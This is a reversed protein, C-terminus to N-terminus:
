RTGPPPAPRCLFTSAAMRNGQAQEWVFVRSNLGCANLDLPDVTLQVTQGPQPANPLPNEKYVGTERSVVVEEESKRCAIQQSLTGDKNILTTSIGDCIVFSNGDRRLIYGSTDHMRIPLEPPQLVTFNVIESKPNAPAVGQGNLLQGGVFAASVLVVVLIAVGFGIAMKRKLAKGEM